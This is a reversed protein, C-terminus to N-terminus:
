VRLRLAGSPEGIASADVGNIKCFHEYFDAALQEDTTGVKIKAIDRLIQAAQEDEFYRHL